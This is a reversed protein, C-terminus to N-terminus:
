GSGRFQIITREPWLLATLPARYIVGCGTDIAMLTESIYPRGNQQIYHGCIVAKGILEIPSRSFLEPYSALAVSDRTRCGPHSPDFGCHSAFVDDLEFYDELSNLFEIHSDPVARKFDDMINVSRLGTYSRATSLGGLRVLHIPDAGKMFDDFAQDHNGRLLTIQHHWLNKAEILRSIVQKSRPGRNVYDGLFVLHRRGGFMNLAQSLEDHSGHIDGVFVFADSSM